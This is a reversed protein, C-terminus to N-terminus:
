PRPHQQLQLQPRCRLPLLRVGPLAGFCLLISLAPRQPGTASGRQAAAIIQTGGGGRGGREGGSEGSGMSSGTCCSCCARLSPSPLVKPAGSPDHVALLSSPCYAAPPVDSIPLEREAASCFLLRLTDPIRLGIEWVQPSPRIIKQDVREM